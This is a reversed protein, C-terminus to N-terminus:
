LGAASADYYDRNRLKAAATEDLVVTADAHWQIVSGPCSASLPGEVAAAIADTKRPGTAILVLSKADLVTGLGQTVCHTPVADASDFFRANDARTRDSLRKVRTRSSLSSGPENFGLHGNAGIGLIQVDVGGAKRILREYSLAGAALAAEDVGSGDPVHLRDPPLGLRACVERLLVERYSQPHGVPLGVYEDLAFGRARSLDLRGESVAHALEAYLGLPSSGTALGLTPEDRGAAQLGELVVEAARRAADAPTPQVLVEM